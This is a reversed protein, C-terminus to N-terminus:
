KMKKSILLAEVHLLRRQLTRRLELLESLEMDEPKLDPTDLFDDWDSFEIWHRDKKPHSVDRAM